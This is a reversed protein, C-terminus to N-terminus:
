DRPEVLFSLHEAANRRQGALVLLSLEPVGWVHVLNDVNAAERMEPSLTIQNKATLKLSGLEQLQPVAQLFEQFRRHAEKAERNEAM